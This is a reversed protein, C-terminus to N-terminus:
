GCHRHTMQISGNTLGSFIPGAQFNLGDLSYTYPATGGSVGSVSITGNSTCTYPTTLTATGIIPPVETIVIPQPASLCVDTGITYQVVVDYNGIALGTFIPSNFFTVGNDISYM